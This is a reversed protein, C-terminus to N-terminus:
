SGRTSMTCRTAAARRVAAARAAAPVRGASPPATPGTPVPRRPSTTYGTRTSPWGAPWPSWGTAATSPLSSRTTPRRPSCVVGGGPDQPAPCRPLRNLAAVAEDHLASHPGFMLRPADWVLVRVQVGREGARAFLDLLSTGPGDLYVWPDLWWALLYIYHTSDT